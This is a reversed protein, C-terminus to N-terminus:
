SIANTVEKLIRSLEAELKAPDRLLKENAQHEVRVGHAMSNRIDTLTGVFAYNKRLDKLQQHRLVFDNADGGSQALTGTVLSEQMFTAARLYDGRQLYIKALALEQHERSAHEVWALRDTLAPKFLCSLTGVPEETLAQQVSKLKARAGSVNQVRELFSAQNLLDASGSALGDKVLLPSFVGYDGSHDYASLADVWNLMHLLGSLELVPTTGDATMDLAGYYIGAVQNNNVRQLFRAAVMSLIPLHRYGHTVDLIVSSGPEICSAIDELIQIQQQETQADPIVRCIVKEPDVGLAQALPAKYHELMDSTVSQSDAADILQLLAEDDVTAVDEFFVDWNSGSTGLLLVEDAKTEELLALGFYRTKHCAGSPFCYNATRYRGIVPKQVASSAPRSARGLLSILTTM